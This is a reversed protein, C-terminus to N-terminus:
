RILEAGIGPYEARLGYGYTWPPVYGYGYPTPWGVRLWFWSDWDPIFPKMTGAPGAFTACDRDLHVRARIRSEFLPQLAQVEDSLEWVEVPSTTFVGIRGGATDIKTSSHYDRVLASRTLDILEFGDESVTLQVPPYQLMGNSVSQGPMSESHVFRVVGSTVNVLSVRQSLYPSHSGTGTPVFMSMAEFLLISFDRPGRWNYILGLQQPVEPSLPQPWFARLTITGGTAPRKYVAVGGIVARGDTLVRGSREKYVLQHQAGFAWSVKSGEDTGSYFDISPRGLLEPLKHRLWKKTRDIPEWLLRGADTTVNGALAVSQFGIGAAGFIDVDDVTQPFPAELIITCDAETAREFRIDTNPALVLGNALRDAPIEAGRRILQESQWAERRVYLSSVADRSGGANRDEEAVVECNCCPLMFDAVVTDTEDYVLLLTAGRAAGAFHELGPQQQVHSVFSPRMGAVGGGGLITGHLEDIQRPLTSNTLGVLASREFASLTSFRNIYLQDNVRIAEGVASRWSTDAHAEEWPDDLGQRAQEVALRYREIVPFLAPEHLRSVAGRAVNYTYDLLTRLQSRVLNYTALVDSAVDTTVASTARILGTALTIPVNNARIMAELTSVVTAVQRGLHGEVRFFTYKGLNSTLPHAAEGEGGYTAAHYGHNHRSMGRLMYNFRWVEHPRTSYNPDYYYPIAREELSADGWHSPTIRIDASTPVRFSQILTDLKRALFQAHGSRDVARRIMPSPYFGTRAESGSGPVVRGLLLHKPFAELDPICVVSDLALQARLASYTEIVDRLFDYYYQLGVFATDFTTQYATLQTIWGSTADADWLFTGAQVHLAPLAAVLASHMASCAARYASALGNIDLIGTLLPRTPVVEALNRSAGDPTPLVGALNNSEAASTELLLVRLTTTARDGRSDCDTPSCVDQDVDVSEVLLLASLTDFAVGESAAFTSLNAARVDSTTSPLLEWTQLPTGGPALKDYRPATDDYRRYHTFELPGAVHALDGDTTVGLGRTLRVTTGSISVRLGCWIGVGDLDVRTLRLQDNLYEIAGNLQEHTLVQNEEFVTYENSIVRLNTKIDPM